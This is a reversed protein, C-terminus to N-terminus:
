LGALAQILEDAKAPELQLIAADDSRRAYAAGDKKGIELLPAGKGGALRLSLRLAPKDLGYAEPGKPQDIFGTAEVGGVKFLADEVKSTDLEKADPATRRWKRVDADNDGKSTTRAYVQKGKETEADMGEVEYTSVDLLRKQRLEAMGKKLDDVLAPPIVVVTTQLADRAHWKGDATASGIELRRQSGDALTVSVSRAPKALGFAKLDKADDAAVADFRLGQLASLLGDVSWRGARTVLPETFGWEGDGKKVLTYGGEPGSVTLTRIDASKLHLVDRDRLDFPKKEFNTGLWSAILFVRPKDETKAYIGSNDPAKEGVLLVLPNPQGDLELRATAKPKDLGYDGLAGPTESVVEEVSLGNLADVVAEVASTDAAAQQPEVLKWADAERVVRIKEADRPLLELAKLKPKEFSFLTEKKKDEGAPKKSEVFYAYAVLGAAIALLAWTKAFSGKVPAEV